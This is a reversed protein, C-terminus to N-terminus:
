AVTASNEVVSQVRASFWNDVAQTVLVGCFLAGIVAPGVAVLAFLTVFRLHLRAGADSSQANLLGFLRRILLGALALILVFGVALLSLVVPSAPGLAGSLRPSSGLWGSIATLVAALGFCGGLVFRSGLWDRWATPMRLAAM